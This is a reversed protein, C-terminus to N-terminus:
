KRNGPGSRRGVRLLNCSGEIVKENVIVFGDHLLLRIGVIVCRTVSIIRRYRVAATASATRVHLGRGDRVIHGDAVQLFACLVGDAPDVSAAAVRASQAATLETEGSLSGEPTLPCIHDNLFLQGCGIENALTAM